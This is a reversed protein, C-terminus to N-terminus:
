LERYFVEAEVTVQAGADREDISVTLTADENWEIGSGHGYWQEDRLDAGAGSGGPGDHIFHYHFVSHYSRNDAASDAGPREDKGVRVLVEGRYEIDTDLGSPGGISIAVGLIERDEQADLAVEEEADAGSARANFLATKVENSGSISM